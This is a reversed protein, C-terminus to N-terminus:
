EIFRVKRKDIDKKLKFVLALILLAILNLNGEERGLTFQFYGICTVIILYIILYQSFSIEGHSPKIILNSLFSLIVFMVFSIIPGYDLTFDGVFTYFKSENLKMHWYKNIRGNYYMAPKMQAVYKFVVATYDGQRTGGPDLGYNNFNLVGQSLYSEAMQIAMDSDGKNRSLTLAIFPILLITGFTVFFKTIRKRLAQHVFRRIFIFLFTSNFIFVGIMFRGGNALSAIPGVLSSIGLGWLILKNKHVITLYYMFFVIAINGCVGGLIAVINFQSASKNVQAMSSNEYLEAGVTNDIILRFLNEKILTITRPLSVFSFVIILICVINFLRQNPPTIREIYSRQLSILPNCVLMIMVFIYLFPLLQLNGFLYVSHNYLDIALVSILAYLAIVANGVGFYRTKCQVIIFTLIWLLANIILCSYSWEIDSM